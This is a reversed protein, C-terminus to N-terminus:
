REFNFRRLPAQLIVILAAGVSHTKWPTVTFSIEGRRRAEPRSLKFLRSEVRIRGNGGDFGAWIYRNLRILATKVQVLPSFISFTAM